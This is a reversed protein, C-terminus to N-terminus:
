AVKHEPAVLWTRKVLQAHLGGGARRPAEDPQRDRAALEAPRAAEPEQFGLHRMLAEHLPSVFRVGAHGRHQWVVKGDIATLGRLRIRLLAGDPLGAEPCVVMCGTKSINCLRSSWSRNCSRCDAELDTPFRYAARQEAQGM